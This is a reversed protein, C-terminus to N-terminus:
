EGSPVHNPQAFIGVARLDGLAAIPDPVGTFKTWRDELLAERDLDADGHRAVLQEAALDAVASRVLLEGPRFSVYGGPTFAVRDQWPGSAM